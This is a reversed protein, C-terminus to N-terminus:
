TLYTVFKKTDTNDRVLYDTNFDGLLWFERNLPILDNQVPKFFDITVKVNKKPPKYLVTINMYKLGPKCPGITLIEMEDNSLTCSSLVKCYKSYKNDVYLCVGSGKKLTGNVHRTQRDLRFLTKDPFSLKSETHSNSLWTDTCAVIM